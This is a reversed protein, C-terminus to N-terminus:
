EFSEVATIRAPRKGANRMKGTSDLVLVHQGYPTSSLGEGWRGTFEMSPAPGGGMKSVMRELTSAIQHATLWREIEEKLTDTITTDTGLLETVMANAGVIFADIKTDTIDIEDDMIQRVEEATTRGM